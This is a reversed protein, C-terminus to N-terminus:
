SNILLILLSLYYNSNNFFHRSNRWYSYTFWPTKSTNSVNKRVITL